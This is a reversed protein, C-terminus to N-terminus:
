IAMIAVIQKNINILDISEHCWHLKLGNDGPKLMKEFVFYHRKVM